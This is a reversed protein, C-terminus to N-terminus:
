LDASDDRQWLQLTGNEAGLIFIGDHGVCCLSTVKCKEMGHWSKKLEFMPLTISSMQGKAHGCLMRPGSELGAVCLIPGALLPPQSHKEAGNAGFICMGGDAYVSIVHGEFQLFGSVFKKPPIQYTVRLTALEVVSIGSTGGVWLSENVVCMCQVAGAISEQITHTCAFTGSAADAQWCRVTADSGGSLLVHQHVLMCTVRKTHARLATQAGSKSFGKISGDGLGAFLWEGVSVMCCGPDGLPVELDAHLEFRNSVANRQARWRKLLKDRSATYIADECVTIATIADGHAKPIEQHRTIADERVEEVVSIAQLPTRRAARSPRGGRSRQGRGAGRGGRGEGQQKEKQPRKM